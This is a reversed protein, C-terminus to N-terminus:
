FMPVFLWLATLKATGPNSYVPVNKSKCVVLYLLLEVESCNHLHKLFVNSMEYM